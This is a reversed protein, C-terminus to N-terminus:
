MEAILFEGLLRNLVDPAEFHPVHGVAAAFADYQGESAASNGGMDHSFVLPTGTGTERYAITIPGLDLNRQETM